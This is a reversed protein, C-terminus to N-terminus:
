CSKMKPPKAPSKRRLRRSPQSLSPRLRKWKQTVAVPQPAAVEVPVPAVPTEAVPEVPAAAVPEPQKNWERIRFQALISEVTPLPKRPEAPVASVLPEAPVLATDVGCGEWFAFDSLYTFASPQEPTAPETVVAVVEPAAEVPPTVVAVPVAPM